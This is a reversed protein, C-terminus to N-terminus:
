ETDLVVRVTNVLLEKQKGVVERDDFEPFTGLLSVTKAEQKVKPNMLM